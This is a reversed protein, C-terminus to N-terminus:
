GDDGDDEDDEPYFLYGQELSPLGDFTDVEALADLVMVPQDGHDNLITGHWKPDAVIRSVALSEAEQPDMAELYYTKYFGVRRPQGEWNVVYNRGNIRVRYKHM